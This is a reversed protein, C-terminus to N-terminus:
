GENPSFLKGAELLQSTPLQINFQIKYILKILCSAVSYHDSIRFEFM